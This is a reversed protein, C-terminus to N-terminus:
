PGIVPDPHAMEKLRQEGKSILADIVVPEVQLMIINVYHQM